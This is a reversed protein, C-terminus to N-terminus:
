KSMYRENVSAHKIRVAQPIEALRGHEKLADYCCEIARGNIQPERLSQVLTRLAWDSNPKGSTIVGLKKRVTDLKEQSQPDAEPLEYVTEKKYQRCWDRFVTSIPIEENLMSFGHALAADNGAFDQLVEAWDAKVAKM